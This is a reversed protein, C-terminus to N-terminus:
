TIAKTATTATGPATAPSSRFANTMAGLDKMFNGGASMGTGMGQMFDVLTNPTTMGMQASLQNAVLGQQANFMNGLHGTAMGAQNQAVEQGMQNTSAMNNFADQLSLKAVNQSRDQLSKMAAGSLMNGGAAYQANNQNAVQQLQYDMNPNLWRNVGEPTNMYAMAQQDYKDQAAQMGSDYGRMAQDMSTNYQGLAAQQRRAQDRQSRINAIGSLIGGGLGLAGGIIEGIM